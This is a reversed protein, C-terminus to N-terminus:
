LVMSDPFVLRLVDHGDVAVGSEPVAVVEITGAGADGKKM